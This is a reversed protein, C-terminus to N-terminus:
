VGAEAEEAVEIIKDATIKDEQIEKQENIEVGDQVEQEDINKVEQNKKVKEEPKTYKYNIIENLLDSNEKFLPTITELATISLESGNLQLDDM